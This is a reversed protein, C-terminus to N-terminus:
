RNCTTITFMLPNESDSPFLIEDGDSIRYLTMSIMISGNLFTGNSSELDEMYWQDNVFLIHVHKRSVKDFPDLIQKGTRKRGLIEDSYAIIEGARGKFVLCPKPRLPLGHDENGNKEDINSINNYKHSNMGLHTKLKVYHEDSVMIESNRRLRDAMVKALTHYLFYGFRLKEYGHLRDLYSVDSALCTAPSLAIVSASRTSSDIIAMEGFVDGSNTLISLVKSSKEIKVEGAILFYIWSDYEGEKIILEGTQYKRIKSLSILGNFDERNFPKLASIHKLKKVVDHNEELYESEIM